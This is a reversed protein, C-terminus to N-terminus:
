RVKVSTFVLPTASSRDSQMECCGDDGACHVKQGHYILRLFQTSQWNEGHMRFHICTGVHMTHGVNLLETLHVGYKEFFLICHAKEAVLGKKIAFSSPTVSTTNCSLSKWAIKRPPLSASLSSSSPLLFLMMKMRKKQGIFRPAAAAYCSHKKSLFCLRCSLNFGRM